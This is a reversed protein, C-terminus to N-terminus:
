RLGQGAEGIRAKLALWATKFDRKADDLSATSGFPPGPITVTVHCLWIAPSRERALRIRGINQGSDFVLYDNPAILRLTALRYDTCAPM